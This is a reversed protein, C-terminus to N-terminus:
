QDPTDENGPRVHNLRETLVFLGALSLALVAPIAHMSIKSALLGLLPMLVVGSLYSMGVQYGTIEESNAHGFLQPTEHIMCPFVPACGLGLLVIGAYMMSGAPLKFLVMGAAMVALGLRIHTRNDLYGAVFGAAFRGATISGYFLAVMFGAQQQMAM